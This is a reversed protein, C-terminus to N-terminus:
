FPQKIDVNGNTKIFDNCKYYNILYGIIKNNIKNDSCLEYYEGCASCKYFIKINKKKGELHPSVEPINCKKCLVFSKNFNMIINILQNKNYHGNIINDTFNTGLIITIYQMLIKNPINISNSIDLINSLETFKGNGKGIHKINLIPMKYRYFIDDSNNINM